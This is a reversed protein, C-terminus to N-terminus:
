LEYPSERQDYTGAPLKPLKYNDLQSDRKEEMMLLRTPPQTNTGRLENRRKVGINKYLQNSQNILDNRIADLGEYPM